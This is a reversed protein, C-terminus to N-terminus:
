RDLDSAITKPHEAHPSSSRTEASIIRDSLSPRVNTEAKINADTAAIALLAAEMQSDASATITDLMNLFDDGKGDWAKPDAKVAAPDLVEIYHRKSQISKISQDDGRALATKTAAAIAEDHQLATFYSTWRCNPNFHNTIMLATGGHNHGLGFTCVQYMPEGAKQWLAGDIVLFDNAYCTLEEIAAEKSLGYRCRIYHTLNNAPFPRNAEENNEPVRMDCVRVPTFLAGNFQRYDTPVIAADCYRKLDHTRLVVPASDSSTEPVEVAFSEKVERERLKRHRPSPLYEEVYRLDVDLKM